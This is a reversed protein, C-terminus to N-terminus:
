WKHDLWCPELDGQVALEPASVQVLLFAWASVVGVVKSEQARPSRLAFAGLSFFSAPNTFLFGSPVSITPIWFSSICTPSREPLSARWARCSVGGDKQRVVM